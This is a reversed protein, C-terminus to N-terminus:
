KQNKIKKLVAGTGIDGLCVVDCRGCGTCGISNYREEFYKLRHMFRYKLREGASPLPTHANAMRSFGSFLCSDWYRYRKILKNELDEIINYCTCVPCVYCCGGCDQCSKAITNWTESSIMEKRLNEISKVFSNNRRIREELKKINKERFKFDIDEARDFLPQNKIIIRKGTESNAEVLYGNELRSLRLDYGECYLTEGPIATCFCEPACEDCLLNVLITSERLKRYYFDTKEGSFFRDVGNIAKLDCSKIGFILKEKGKKESEIATKLIDKDMKFMMEIQPFFFRKPSEVPNIYDLTLESSNKIPNFFIEEGIKVPAIVEFESCLSDILKLLNDKTIKKAELKM